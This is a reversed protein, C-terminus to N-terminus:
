SAAGTAPGDRFVVEYHKVTLDRDILFRDDEPYFKAREFDGGTFRDIAERSEWLSVLLLEAREEDPKSVIRRLAYVGLNGETERYERFGTDQLYGLYAEADAVRTAGRWTRAIM